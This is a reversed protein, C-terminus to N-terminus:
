PLVGQLAKRAAAIDTKSPEVGKAYVRLIRKREANSIRLLNHWASGKAIKGVYIRDRKRVVIKKIRNRIFTANRFSLLLKIQHTASVVGGLAVLEQKLQYYPLSRRGIITTDFDVSVVYLQLSRPRNAPMSRKQDANANRKRRKREMCNIVRRTLRIRRETGRRSSAIRSAASMVAGPGAM